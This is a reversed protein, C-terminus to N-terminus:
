GATPALSPQHPSRLAPLTPAHKGKVGLPPEPESSEDVQIVTTVGQVLTGYRAQFPNLSAGVVLVVDAQTMLAVEEEGSFDGAIGLDWSSNLLNRAM